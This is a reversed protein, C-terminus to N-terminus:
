TSTVFYEGDARWSIRPKGDDVLTKELKAEPARESLKGAKGQFQTEKKGWGLAVQTDAGEEKTDVDVEVLM